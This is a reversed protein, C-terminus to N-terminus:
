IVTYMFIFSMTRDAIDAVVWNISARDNATDGTISASEYAGAANARSGTGGLQSSVSFNSAVPLSVGLLAAGTATADINAQGSVTVTNGVRTWNCVAATSGAINTTNTLTPTYTGSFLKSGSVTFDGAFEILGDRLYIGSLVAGSSRAEIIVTADDQGTKDAYLELTAGTVAGGPAEEVGVSLTNYSGTSAFIGALTHGDSARVFKLSNTGSKVIPTVISIGDADLLVAGAGALFQGATNWGAQLVGLAVSFIHMINSGFTTGAGTIASGTFDTSTPDTVLVDPAPVILNDVVLTGTNQGTEDLTRVRASPGASLKSELDDLRTYINRRNMRKKLPQEVFDSM